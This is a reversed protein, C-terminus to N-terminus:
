HVGEENNNNFKWKSSLTHNQFHSFKTILAEFMQIQIQGNLNSMGFM